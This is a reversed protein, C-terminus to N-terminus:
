LIQIGVDLPEFARSAGCGEETKAINEADAGSPSVHVIAIQDSDEETRYVQYNELDALEAYKVAQDSLYESIEPINRQEEYEYPLDDNFNLIAERTRESPPESAFVFKPVMWSLQKRRVPRANAAQIAEVHSKDASSFFGILNAASSLDQVMRNHDAALLRQSTFLPLTTESVTETHLALMSAVGLIAICENGEVIRRILEDATSNELEAFSWEELAMFGCGIANPAWTSRFWLYERDTGWFIQTGWPFTLELPIPTGARNRSHRHLQRWATIAHNCLRRLLRLAEDPSSRFLSHFPERLPSPPWFGRLNGHLSLEEWEFESFDGIPHLPSLSSLANRDQDTRENEPKALIAKRRESQEHLERQERAIQEDPLEDRLYTLSLEVVAQPLSQALIPSYAIVDHFTDDKIRESHIVRQLLEAALSPESNSSSLILERLSKRLSGLEPVEQWDASDEVSRDDANIADITALWAACQQM